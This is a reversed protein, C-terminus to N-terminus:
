LGRAAIFRALAMAGAEQGAANWHSDDPFYVNRGKMLESRLADTTDLFAIGESACFERMLENLALRNRLLVEVDPAYAQDRLCAGVARRLEGPSFNDQLLPLYVQEKSPILMVVLEAGESRALGAMERYWRRTLEFRHSAMLQDRSFQLVNLYPPLFAFRLPRGNVPVTFLGRDFLVEEPAPSLDDGSYDEPAGPMPGSAETDKRALLSGLGQMFSMTYLEDFRPMVPKFKWGLGSAPYSGDRQFTEFLEADHLDNGTFFGVVVLRPKRKLVYEELVLREQGPGFGATGYNRVGVGSLRAMRSPWSLEAPLTMADTFSDGLAAVQLRPAPPDSNRFGEADTVLAFRYAPHRALGPALFGLRVSDGHRWECSTRLSPALRPGYRASEQWRPDARAEGLNRRQQAVWPPLRDGLARLGLELVGLSLALAIAATTASLALTRAPSGPALVPSAAASRHWAALLLILAALGLLRPGPDPEEVVRPDSLRLEGLTDIQLLGRTPPLPEAIEVAEHLTRRYITRRAGGELLAIELGARGEPVARLRFRSPLSSEIPFALRGRDTALIQPDVRGDRLDFRQRIRSSPAHEDVFFRFTAAYLWQHLLGVVLVAHGLALLWAAWPRRVREAFLRELDSDQPALRM